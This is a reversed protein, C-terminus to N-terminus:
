RQVLTTLLEILNLTMGEVGQTDIDDDSEFGRLYQEDQEDTLDSMKVQYGIVEIFVPVHFNLLKWAPKLIM